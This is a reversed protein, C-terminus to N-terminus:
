PMEGKGDVGGQRRAAFWTFLRETAELAAFVLVLRVIAAYADLGTRAILLGAAGYAAAGAAIALTTRLARGALATV